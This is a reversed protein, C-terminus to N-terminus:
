SGPKSGGRGRGSGGGRGAGEGSRPVKKGSARKTPGAKRTARKRAGAELRERRLTQERKRRAVTRRERIREHRGRALDTIRDWRSATLAALALTGLLLNLLNVARTAPLVGFLLTGDAALVGWIGLGTFLLAAFLAWLRSLNPALLLALLGAIVHFAGAWGNVAHFGFLETWLSPESFESNEILGALGLLVLLAGSLTAYLRTFGVRAVRGNQRSPRNRANGKM